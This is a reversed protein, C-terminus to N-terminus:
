NVLKWFRRAAAAAIPRVGNSWARLWIAGRPTMAKEFRLLSATENSMTEKFPTPYGLLSYTSLGADISAAISFQHALMGPSMPTYLDDYSSLWAHRCGNGTLNIVFAVPDYGVSLIDVEPAFTGDWPSLGTLFEGVRPITLGSCLMGNKALWQRKWDLAMRITEGFRYSSADITEFSVAGHEELMRLKRHFDKRRNKSLADIYDRGTKMGSWTLFAILTAPDERLNETRFANALPSSELLLGIQVVDAGSIYEAEALALRIGDLHNGGPRMLANAIQTHPEGLITLVRVGESKRTMLPLLAMLTDGRYILKIHLQAAGDTGCWTEAWASCWAFSQFAADPDACERELELWRWANRRLTGIDSITDIRWAADGRPAKRREEAQQEM